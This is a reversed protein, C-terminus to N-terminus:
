EWQRLQEPFPCDECDSEDVLCFDDYIQLLAQQQYLWKKFKEIRHPNDGFLRLAARRVKHNDLEARLKKYESWLEPHEGNILVPLIFNALMDAIRAKGILAMPQKASKSSLTYHTSWYPHELDALVKELGPSSFKKRISKWSRALAALAGVRRQPHNIPRSGGMKWELAREFTDRYKWWTEWLNRLYPQAEPAADEFTPQNLFGAAGFLLAEADEGKKLLDRVPLRQALVRMPVKNNAYGLAEGFAQFYAEERGHIDAVREFRRAKLKLRFQAAAELLRDVREVEMEGLPLACRGLRAEAEFFKPRPGTLAKLDLQVQPVELHSATRTFFRPGEPATVFLHLVVLDYVPNEAHGHHEWDRADPDLEIHGSHKEEEIRVVADSFDPGAAHNWHGFQVIEVRRGDVTEFERGFEGAFWRSQLELEPPMPDLGLPLLPSERVADVGFVADRFRGYRDALILGEVGIVEEATTTASSPRSREAM